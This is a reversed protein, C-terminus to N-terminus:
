KSDLIQEVFNYNICVFIEHVKYHAFIWANRQTKLYVDMADYRIVHYMVDNILVYILM